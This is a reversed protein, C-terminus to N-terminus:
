IREANERREDRVANIMTLKDDATDDANGTRGRDEKRGNPPTSSPCIM